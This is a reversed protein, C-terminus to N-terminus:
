LGSTHSASRSQKKLEYFQDYSNSHLQIYNLTEWCSSVHLALHDDIFYNRNTIRM